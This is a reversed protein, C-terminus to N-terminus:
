KITSKHSGRQRVMISEADNGDDRKMGSDRKHSARPFIKWLGM